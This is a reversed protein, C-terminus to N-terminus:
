NTCRGHWGAAGKTTDIDTFHRAFDLMYGRWAFRPQDEIKCAPMEWNVGAQPTNAYITPPLLQRLTQGGYFLGATTAATIRVIPTPYVELRYGEKGLAGELSADLTLVIANGLKGDLAPMPVVAFGLGTAPRLMEALTQAEPKATEAAYIIQTKDDLKCTGTGWAVQAPMPILSVPQAANALLAGFNATLACWAVVLINISRRPMM